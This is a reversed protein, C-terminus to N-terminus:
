LSPLSRPRRGLPFADDIREVEDTSLELDGAGANERAHEVSSSKPIAFVSEERVLFALAVQRPTIGRARAIEALVRGGRSTASPFRGSGFPSYGVVAVGHEKCWPIVEHEIAREELHYLVQNCSMRGEGAIALAEELDELDFNSVGWFRIKGDRVLREFAGITQELPLSGRWHLLYVDLRDTRLRSLSGECARLVGDLSAHQPLVKSVLFVKERRGAIAEGVIEEVLGSGYMEATDIHSVGLDLGARLAAVAKARGDREM